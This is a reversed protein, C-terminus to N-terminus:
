QCKIVKLKLADNKNYKFFANLFSIKSNITSVKLKSKKLHEKYDLLIDKTVVGEKGYCEYFENIDRLYKDITNEAKEEEKLYREFMKIRDIM